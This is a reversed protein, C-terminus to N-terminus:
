ESVWCFEVRLIPNSMLSFHMHLELPQMQLLTQWLFWKSFTERLCVGNGDDSLTHSCFLSCSGNTYWPLTSTYSLYAMKKRSLKCFKDRDGVSMHWLKCCVLGFENEPRWDNQVSVNLTPPRYLHAIYDIRIAKASWRYKSERSYDYATHQHFHQRSKKENFCEAFSNHSLVAAFAIERAGHATQM